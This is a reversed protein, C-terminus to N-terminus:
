KFTTTVSNSSNEAKTNTTTHWKTTRFLWLLNNSKLLWCSLLLLWNTGALLELWDTKPLDYLLLLRNSSLLLLILRCLTILHVLVLVWCTLVILRLLNRLWYLLLHRTLGNFSWLDTLCELIIGLTGQKVCWILCWYHHSRRHNVFSIKYIGADNILFSSDLIWM